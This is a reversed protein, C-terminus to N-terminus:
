NKNINSMVAKPLKSNAKPTVPKNVKDAPKIAKNTQQTMVREAPKKTSVTDKVVAKQIVSDKIALRQIAGVSDILPKVAGRKTAVVQGEFEVNLKEYKDGAKTFVQKYFSYVKDLKKEFDDATGLEVIHNGIVPILEFKRDATINVQATQAMWFTDAIIYKGISLVQQMLVSDGSSMKNLDGPFNTFLPVRASLKESLPMQMANADLYFSNGASMFIRAVPERETVKINLVNNNDFFMEVNEMWPNKELMEELLRLRIDGIQKEKLSEGDIMMLVDQEDLFMHKTDGEIEVKVESCKRQDKHQMAAVLVIVVTIGSAIWLGQILRKKWM